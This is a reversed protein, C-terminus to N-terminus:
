PPAASAVDAPPPEAPAVDEPPPVLDLAVVGAVVNLAVLGVM